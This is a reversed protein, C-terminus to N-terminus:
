CVCASALANMFNKSKRILQMAERHKTQMEQTYGGHKLIAKRSNAKGFDSKPGTSRGGHMHCVNRGRM